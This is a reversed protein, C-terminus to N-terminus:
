KRSIPIVCTESFRTKQSHSPLIWDWYKILGCSNGLLLLRLAAWVAQHPALSHSSPFSYDTQENNGLSLCIIGVWINSVCIQSKPILKQLGMFSFLTWHERITATGSCVSMLQFRSPFFIYIKLLFIFIYNSIM